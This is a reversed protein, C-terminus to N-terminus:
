LCRSGEENGQRRSFSVHRVYHLNIVLSVLIAQRNKVALTDQERASDRGREETGHGLGHDQGSAQGQMHETSCSVVVYTIHVWGPPISYLDPMGVEAHVLGSDPFGRSHDTKEPMRKKLKERHFMFSPFPTM